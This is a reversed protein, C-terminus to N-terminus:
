KKVTRLTKHCNVCNTAMRVYDLTAGDINKAEAKRIMDTTIAQFENSLTLYNEVDPITPVEWEAGRSMARLSRANKAILAFDELALGELVNKSFELKKRMFESRTRKPTDQARSTLVLALAGVIALAALSRFTQVRMIPEQLLSDHSRM